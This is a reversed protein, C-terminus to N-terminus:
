VTGLLRQVEEESMGAERLVEETHEGLAPASSSPAPRRGNFLFPAAVTPLVGYAGAPLDM